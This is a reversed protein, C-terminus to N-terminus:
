ISVLEPKIGKKIQENIHRLILRVGARVIATETMGTAAALQKLEDKEPKPVRYSCRQSSESYENSLGM